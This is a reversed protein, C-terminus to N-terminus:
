LSTSLDSRRDARTEEFIEEYIQTVCKFAKLAQEKLENDRGKVRTRIYDIRSDGDNLDLHTKTEFPIARHIFRGGYLDGLYNVYLDADVLWEPSNEIHESYNKTSLFIRYDYTDFYNSADKAIHTVISQEKPLMIRKEIALAIDMKQYLVYAWQQETISGDLMSKSLQTKEAATHAEKTYEKLSVSAM